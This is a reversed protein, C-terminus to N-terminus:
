FWVPHSWKFIGLQPVTHMSYAMFLANSPLKTTDLTHNDQIIHATMESHFAIIIVMTVTLNLCDV